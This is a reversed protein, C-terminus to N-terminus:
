NRVLKTRTCFFVHKLAGSFHKSFSFRLLTQPLFIKLANSFSFRILTKLLFIKLTNSFSFRLLTKLLFIKLTNSFSFRLLTKLLFIKLANQSPFDYSHKSPRSLIPVETFKRYYCNSSEFM